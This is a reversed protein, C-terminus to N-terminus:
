VLGGIKDEYQQIISLVENKREPNNVAINTINIKAEDIRNENYKIKARLKQRRTSLGHRVEVMERADILAKVQALWIHPDYLKLQKLLSELRVESESLQETMMAIRRQEERIELYMEYQASLEYSNKVGYKEREYDVTSAINIYKIKVKNLLSTAKNLKQQTLKVKRQAMQLMWLLGIAILAALAIVITFLVAAIEEMAFAAILFIGFVIFLGVASMKAMSRISRQRKYLDKADARLSLQEGELMRMDKRVAEYYAENNQFEILADPMYPELMEMRFFANQSLRNEGSKFIRRDVTLESIQEAMKQIESRIEDPAAEIIQIDSFYSTVAKYEENAIKIERAADEMIDCQNKIYGSIDNSNLKTIDINQPAAAQEMAQYDSLTDVDYDDDYQNNEDYGEGAFEDDFDYESDEDDLMRKFFNVIGM